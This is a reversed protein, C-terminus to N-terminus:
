TRPTFDTTVKGDGYGAIVIKGDPQLAIANADDYTRSPDTTVRGDAGFSGDVNYRAIAIETDFDRPSFGALGAAVIKGDSQVAVALAGDAKGTFDTTVKGDGGFTTDLSGDSHYRALAFTPNPGGFGAMGAAILKGDPQAAVSSAADFRSTFNTVVKGDVGFSPDLEGGAAAAPVVVGLALFLAGAIAVAARAPLHRSGLTSGL